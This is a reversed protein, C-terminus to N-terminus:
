DKIRRYKHKWLVSAMKNAVREVRWEAARPFFSHLMEHILTDLYNKSDQRPDIEILGLGQYCQGFAKERGLKREVVRLKPLRRRKNM